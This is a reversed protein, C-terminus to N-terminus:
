VGVGRVPRMMINTGQRFENCSNMRTAPDLNAIRVGENAKRRQASKFFQTVDMKFQSFIPREMVGNHKDVIHKWLPKDVAKRAVDQAHEDGRTYLNRGTEGEYKCLIEEGCVNCTIRCSGKQLCLVERKWLESRRKCWTCQHGGAFAEIGQIGMSSYWCFIRHLAPPSTELVKVAHSEVQLLHFLQLLVFHLVGEETEVWFKQGAPIKNM